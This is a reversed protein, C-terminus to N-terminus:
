HNWDEFDYICMLATKDQEGLQVAWNFLGMAILDYEETVVMYEPLDTQGFANVLFEAASGEQYALFALISMTPRWQQVVFPMQNYSMVNGAVPVHKLGLAHGIEHVITLYTSDVIAYISRGDDMPFIEETYALNPGYEAQHNLDIYIDAELMKSAKPATRLRAFSYLEGEIGGDKFYIVSQGDNVLRESVGDADGWFGDQLSFNRPPSGKVIEIVPNQNFGELTENWLGAAREVLYLYPEAGEGIRLQMTSEWGSWSYESCLGDNGISFTRPTLPAREPVMGSHRIGGCESPKRPISVQASASLALALASVAAASRAIMM